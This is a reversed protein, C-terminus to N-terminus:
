LMPAPSYTAASPYRKALADVRKVFARTQETAAGTFEIPTSLLQQLAPLDLPVRPDAALRQLLDNDATGRDRAALAVAVAHEKIAEHAAERGAGGRAAAMLIKTTAL